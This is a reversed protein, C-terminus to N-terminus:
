FPLCLGSLAKLLEHYPRTRNIRGKEESSLGWGDIVVLCVKAAMEDAFVHCAHM